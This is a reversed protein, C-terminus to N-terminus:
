SYQISQDLRVVVVSMLIELRVVVVRPTNLPSILHSTM